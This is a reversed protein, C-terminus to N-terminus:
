LDYPLDWMTGSPLETNAWEARYVEFAYRVDPDSLNLEEASMGCGALRALRIHQDTSLGSKACFALWEEDSPFVNM